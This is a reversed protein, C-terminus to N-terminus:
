IESEITKRIKKVDYTSQIKVRILPFEASEFIQNVLQDRQQRHPRNHSKDDLEIAVLPNFTALDCIVFDVHKALIKNLWSQYKTVGKQVRVLDAIRVMAFIEWDGAVAQQLSRYFKLESKTLLSERKTYPLRRPLTLQRLLLFLAIVILAIILYPWITAAILM